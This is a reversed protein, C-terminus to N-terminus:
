GPGTGPDRRVKYHTETEGTVNFGLPEYLRRAPNVKLVQLVVPRAGAREIVDRILASGLGRRQHTPALEIEVIEVEGERERVQFFGALAGDVDIVRLGDAAFTERFFSRQLADDWPGWTQEVYGGLAAHHIAYLPEFDEAEPPRLRWEM